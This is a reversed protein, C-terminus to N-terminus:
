FIRKVRLCDECVEVIDPNGKGFHADGLTSISRTADLCGNDKLHLKLYLCRHSHKCNTGTYYDLINNVFEDMFLNIPKLTQLRELTEKSITRNVLQKVNTNNKSDKSINVDDSVYITM